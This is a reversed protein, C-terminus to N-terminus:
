VLSYWWGGCVVVMWWWRGSGAVMWWWGGGALIYGRSSVMEWFISWWGAFALIYQYIVEKLCQM